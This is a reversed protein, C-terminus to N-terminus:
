YYKEHIKKLKSYNPDNASIIVSVVDEKLLYNKMSTLVHVKDIIVPGGSLPQTKGIVYTDYWNRNPMLNKQNVRTRKAIIEGRRIALDAFKQCDNLTSNEDFDLINYQVGVRITTNSDTLLGQLENLLNDSNNPISINTALQQFYFGFALNLRQVKSNEESNDLNNNQLFNEVWNPYLKGGKAWPNKFINKM